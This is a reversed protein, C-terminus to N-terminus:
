AAPKCVLGSEIADSCRLCLTPHTANSGVETLVRWCRACKDGSALTVRAPSEDTDPVIQVSSVIAIESWEAADLLTAPQSNLPLEVAAQLSSGIVNAKRSEEIPVTIRRRITRITEWKAALADDRWEAPPTQFQELHM